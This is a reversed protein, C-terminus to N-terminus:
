SLNYLSAISVAFADPSLLTVSFRKRYKTSVPLLSAKAAMNNLDKSELNGELRLQESSTRGSTTISNPQRAFSISKAMGNM